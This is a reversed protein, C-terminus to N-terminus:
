AEDANAVQENLFEAAKAVPDKETQEYILRALPELGKERAITARTRRKPRYPLYIDELETLTLADDIRQRLEPTMKGQEEISRIIAERRKDLEKLRAYEDKITLLTVEDLSGTSEKRYRSIFPITAGDDMLRITNEVQWVKLGLKNAIFEFHKDVSMDPMKDLM